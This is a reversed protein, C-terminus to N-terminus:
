KIMGLWDGFIFDMRGILLSMRSMVTYGFSAGFTVMIVWIGIKAAGGFAGKHEKSFFFYVLGTFTGIVVVMNAVIQGFSASFISSGYETSFFPLISDKVQLMVNSSFYNMLYLGSIAGVVFSLPWRSIWGINPILRLLMMFGLIAGVLLMYDHSDTIGLYLKGYLNDWFSVVFWYGASIGVFIAESIKYWANDKYLFSIIGLTFFAALWTGFVDM